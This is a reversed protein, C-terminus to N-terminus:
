TLRILSTDYVWKPCRIVVSDKEDYNGKTANPIKEHTTTINDITIVRSKGILEYRICTNALKMLAVLTIKTKPHSKCFSAFATIPPADLTEFIYEKLDPYDRTCFCIFDTTSTEFAQLHYEYATEINKILGGKEGNIEKLIATPKFARVSAIPQLNDKITHKFDDKFFHSYLERDIIGEKKDIEWDKSKHNILTKFDEKQRLTLEGWEPLSRLLERHLMTCSVISEKGAYILKLWKSFLEAVPDKYTSLTFRLGGTLMFPAEEMTHFIGIIGASFVRISMKIHTDRRLWDKEFISEFCDIVHESDNENSADITISNICHKPM